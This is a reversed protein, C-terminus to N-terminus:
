STRCACAPWTRPGHIEADDREEPCSSAPRPHRDERAPGARAVKEMSSPSASSTTSARPRSSTPAPPSRRAWACLGSTWRTAWRADVGRRHLAAAAVEIPDGGQQRGEDRMRRSSPSWNSRIWTTSTRPAPTARSSAPPASPSTTAPSACATRSARPRRRGPHRGPHRHPQPRPMTMQMVPELGERMCSSRRPSAPCACSRPRATPSTSRTPAHGEADAGQCLVVEADADMPPGIEATVAFQGAALVRELNSGSKM